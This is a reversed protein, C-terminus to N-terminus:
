ICTSTTSRPTSGRRAFATSSRRPARSLQVGRRRPPCGDPRRAKGASEANRPRAPHDRDRRRCHIQARRRRPVGMARREVASQPDRGIGQSPVGPRDSLDHHRLPLPQASRLIPHQLLHGARPGMAAQDGLLGQMQRKKIEVTNIVHARSAFYPVVNENWLFVAVSLLLCVGLLPAVIQASSLGCARMATIENHRSLGGLGLLM